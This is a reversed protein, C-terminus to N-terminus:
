ATRRGTLGLSGSVTGFIDDSGMEWQLHLAFM